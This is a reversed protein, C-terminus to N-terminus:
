YNKKFFSIAGGILLGIITSLLAFIALIPKIGGAFLGFYILISALCFLGILFGISLTLPKTKKKIWTTIVVVSLVTVCSIFIYSSIVLNQILIAVITGLIALCFIVKKIGRVTKRKDWNFFDQIISSAGTFIYTDISSMIAAFLLLVALGLFGSPVLYAFGHILALDPDIAPFNLKVVLAVLALLLAFIFYVFASLLIGNRLTKKSKSSYVRQWLDPMAFPTLLGILFFGIMTGIDAKFFNWESPPILTGGFLSLALFILIFFMAAYQLIDTRVVAKFGGMLLYVLVIFVMIISCIWFPWSTFFVFIKTGAILNMILFGFMIFITILSAFIAPTKGYNYKFYDALTYYRKQSQEKLRLAFPLFVLIGLTMGIFFWLASIGWIYVLAVFIMLVSGTKSANITAMTSWSGLNREAILYDEEKQKRSTFYGILLLVAFYLFILLLDITSLMAM